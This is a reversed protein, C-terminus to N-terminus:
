VIDPLESVWKDKRERECADKREQRKVVNIRLWRETVRCELRAVRREVKGKRERKM